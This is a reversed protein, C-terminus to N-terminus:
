IHMVRSVPIEKFVACVSVNIKIMNIYLIIGINSIFSSQTLSLSAAQLEFLAIDTNSTKYDRDIVIAKLYNTVSDLSNSNFCLNEKYCNISHIKIFLPNPSPLM